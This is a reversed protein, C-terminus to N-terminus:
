PIYGGCDGFNDDSVSADFTIQIHWTDNFSTSTSAFNWDTTNTTTSNDPYWVAATM